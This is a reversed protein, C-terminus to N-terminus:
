NCLRENKLPTGGRTIIYSIFVSFQNNPIRQPEPALALTFLHGEHERNHNWIGRSTGLLSSELLTRDRCGSGSTGGSNGGGRMRQQQPAFCM